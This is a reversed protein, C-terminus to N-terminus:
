GDSEPLSERGIPLTGLPKRKINGDLSSPRPRSQGGSRVPVADVVGNFKLVKRAQGSFPGGGNELYKRMYRVAEPGDNKIDAIAGLFYYPLANSADIRTCTLFSERAEEWKKLNCRTYGLALHLGDYRGSKGTARIAQEFSEEAAYYEKMIFQVRGLQYLYRADDPKISLASYLSDEASRFDGKQYHLMAIEFHIDHRRPYEDVKNIATRLKSDVISEADGTPLTISFDETVEHTIACSSLGFVLLTALIISLTNGTKM